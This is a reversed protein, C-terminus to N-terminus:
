KLVLRFKSGYLTIYRPLESAKCTQPTAKGDLKRVDGDIFIHANLNLSKFPKQGCKCNELPVNGWTDTLAEQLAKFGNKAIIKPNLYFYPVEEMESNGCKCNIMRYASPEDKMIFEWMDAVNSFVNISKLMKPSEIETDSKNNRKEFDVLILCRANYVNIAKSIDAGSKLLMHVFQCSSNNSNETHMSYELVEMVSTLLIQMIADFQCTNKLFYRRDDIILPKTFRSGNILLWHKSSTTFQKNFASAIDHHSHIEPFKRFYKSPKRETTELPRKKKEEDKKLVKNVKSNNESSCFVLFDDHKGKNRWNEFEHLDDTNWNCEANLNQTTSAKVFSENNLLISSSNDNSDVVNNVNSTNFIKSGNMIPSQPVHEDFSLLTNSISSQQNENNEQKENQQYKYLIQRPNTVTNKPLMLVQTIKASALVSQGKLAEYHIKFLKDVRLPGHVHKLINNKLQNFDGEVYCSSPRIYNSDFSNKMVATWLPFEKSMNCLHNFFGPLYYPNPMSYVTKKNKEAELKIANIWTKICEASEPEENLFLDQKNPNLGSVSLKEILLKFEPSDEKPILDIADHTACGIFDLLKIRADEAPSPDTSNLMQGGYQHVSIRLTLLLIERFKELEDCSIMLAVCRILFDKVAQTRSAFYKQKCFIAVLHAVDIRIFSIDNMIKDNQKQLVYFCDQIYEKISLHNFSRSIAGLLARSYDCVVEKPKIDVSTLWENLFFLIKNTTQSASLLQGVSLTVGLFNIVIEYLFIHPSKINEAIQLPLALSGTSDICVTIYYKFLRCYEKYVFVQEPLFYILFFKDNGIEHITGAYQPSYKLKTLIKQVDNGDKADVGLKKDNTEQILKRIVDNKYLVPAEVDGLNQIKKALKRRYNSAGETIVEKGIDQRKKNRLQRKMEEHSNQRTDKCNVKMWVDSGPIPKEEIFGLFENNCEKSKCRGQIKVYIKEPNESVKCYRFTFACPIRFEKWFEDAVIDTWVGPTLVLFEKGNYIKCVPKMKEWLENILCMNFIESDKTKFLESFSNNIEDSDVGDDADDDDDDDDSYFNILEQSECEVNSSTKSPEKIGLKKFVETKLSRRNERLNTYVNHASWNRNLLQSVKQYFEHTYPPLSGDKLDESLECIATLAEEVSVKAARPM